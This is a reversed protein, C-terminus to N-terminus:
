QPCSVGDDAGSGAVVGHLDPDPACGKDLSPKSALVLALALHIRVSLPVGPVHLLPEADGCHDAFLLSHDVGLSQWELVM